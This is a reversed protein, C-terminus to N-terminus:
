GHTRSSARGCIWLFQQVRCVGEVSWRRSALRIEGSRGRIECTGTVTDEDKQVGDIHFWLTGIPCWDNTDVGYMDESCVKSDHCNSWSRNDMEKMHPSSNDMEKLMHASVSIQRVSPISSTFARVLRRTAFIMCSSEWFDALKTQSDIWCTYRWCTVIIKLPDIGLKQIVPQSSRTQISFPWWDSTRVNTNTVHCSDCHIGFLREMMKEILIMIVYKQTKTKSVIYQFIM